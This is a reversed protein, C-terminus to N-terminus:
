LARRHRERYLPLQHHLGELPDGPSGPWRHGPWGRRRSMGPLRNSRRAQTTRMPPSASRSSASDPEVTEVPGAAVPRASSQWARPRARDARRLRGPRGGGALFVKLGTFRRSWQASRLIRTQSRPLQCTVQRRRFARSVADGHCTLFIGTGMPVSLWKHADITVSCSPWGGTQRTSERSCRVFGRPCCAASAWGADVHLDVELQKCVHAIASLPGIM